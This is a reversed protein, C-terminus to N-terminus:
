INGTIRLPKLKLENTFALYLTLTTLRIRQLMHLM